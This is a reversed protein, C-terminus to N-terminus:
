WPMDKALLMVVQPVIKSAVDSVHQVYELKDWDDSTPLAVACAMDTVRVSCLSRDYVAWLVAHWTAYQSIVAPQM